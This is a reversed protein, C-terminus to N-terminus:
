NGPPLAPFVQEWGELAEHAEKGLRIVSWVRWAVGAAKKFLGTRGNSPDQLNFLVLQGVLKETAAQVGDPGVIRMHSIAWLIDHVRAAMAAKVVAPLETDAELADIVSNLEDQLQAAQEDTLITGEGAIMGLVEALTGLAVLANGDVLGHSGDGGPNRGHALFPKAWAGSFREHSAVLTPRGARKVATQVEGLLAAAQGLAPLLDREDVELISAWLANITINPGANLDFQTLLEYLRGAPNNLISM